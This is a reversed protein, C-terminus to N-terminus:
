MYWKSCFPAKTYVIIYNAWCLWLSYKHVFNIYNNKFLYCASKKQCVHIIKLRFTLYKKQKSSSCTDVIENKTLLLWLLSPRIKLPCCVLCLVTLIGSLGRVIGYTFLAVVFILFLRSGTRWFLIFLLIFCFLSIQRSFIKPSLLLCYMYIFIYICIHM